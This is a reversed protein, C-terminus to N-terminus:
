DSDSRSPSRSRSRGRRRLAAPVRETEPSQSRDRQRERPAEPSRSRQRAARSGSQGGEGTSEAAEDRPRQMYKEFDDGGGRRGGGGRQQQQQQRGRGREDRHGRGREERYGGRQQQHHQQRRQQFRGGGGGGGDSRSRARDSPFRRGGGGSEFRMAGGFRMSGRGRVVRGDRDHKPKEGLRKLVASETVAAAPASASASASATATADTEDVADRATAEDTKMAVDEEEESAGGRAKKAKKARKKEKKKAKKAQKKAKKKAKKAKKKAKKSKSKEDDSSSSSSSDSSSDDSEGGNSPAGGGANSATVQGCDTVVVRQVMVPANGPMDVDVDEIADLVAMGKVIEGFVVHKKNLHPTSKFIIFFQSGNTGPGANAMSLLGRRDHTRIFKEDDFSGGYISEGGTGNHREFDGGQAMFGKIVRHFRSAKYHLPLKTKLGVGKEGTCLCRFNEATRPADKEFLRFVMRGVPSGGISVDLYVLSDRSAM